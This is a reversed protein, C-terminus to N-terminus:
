NSAGMNSLVHIFCKCGQTFNWQATSSYVLALLRKETFALCHINLAKHAM